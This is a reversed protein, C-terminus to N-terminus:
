GVREEQLVHSQGYGTSTKDIAFLEMVVSLILIILNFSSNAFQTQATGGQQCQQVADIDHYFVVSVTYFFPM